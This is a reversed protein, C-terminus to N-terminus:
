CLFGRVIYDDIIVQGSYTSLRFGGLDGGKKRATLWIVFRGRGNVISTQRAAPIRSSTPMFTILEPGIVACANTLVIYSLILLHNKKM